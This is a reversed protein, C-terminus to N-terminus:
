RDHFPIFSILGTECVKNLYLSKTRYTYPFTELPCLTINFPKLDACCTELELWPTYRKYSDPVAPTKSEWRSRCLISEPFYPKRLDLFFFYIHYFLNRQMADLLSLFIISQHISQFALCGSGLSSRRTYGGMMESM